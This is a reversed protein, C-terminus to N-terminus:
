RVWTRLRRPLLGAAGLWVLAKGADERRPDQLDLEGCYSLGIPLKLLAEEGYLAVDARDGRLASEGPRAPLGYEWRLERDAEARHRSRAPLGRDTRLEDAPVEGPRAM